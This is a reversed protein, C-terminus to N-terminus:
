YSTEETVKLMHQIIKMMIKKDVKAESQIDGYTKPKSWEQESMPTYHADQHAKANYLNLLQHQHHFIARLVDISEISRVAHM